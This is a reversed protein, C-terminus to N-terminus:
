VAALSGEKFQARCLAHYVGGKASLEAHSGVEVIHGGDLVVIKDCDLITSIRHAVIFSTRGARARSTAEQILRETQSDINATAEDLILIDPNFALVRAFAILQREGHSLNAGREEVRADLGGAHRSLIEDLCAMKAAAAIQERSISPDDLSINAAITGRFMFTDQQVVGIRSRLDQRPIELISRGDILLDGESAEYFRQLLTILSSKGSGSRGVLAISEGPQVTLCIADLAKPLGERYRFSVDKFEVLGRLRKSTRPKATVPEEPIEDLLTFVREAGSLSNQLIQYKELIAHMPDKFARVHLIFAVMAGTTVTGAITLLGGVYLAALVSAANFFNVTPWLLAYLRVSKMQVQRYDGSLDHFRQSNRGVRGYLQLLRMGGINEAVFANIAALKKKSDRLVIQIRNSLQIVIWILPPAILLTFFTIKVSIMLMATIIAALSVVSAFISILGQTFLEGLSVVDSTLRTMIRGSPNKEFYSIPLSQTHHILRERIDFLIRNGMKAFLFGHLFTMFCRGAELAFYAIAVTVIVNRDKKLLGNDIAYGFFFVALREAAAVSFVAVLTTFFLVKQRMFHPWFHKVLDWLTTQSRVNDESVLNNESM